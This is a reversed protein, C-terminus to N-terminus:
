TLILILCGVRIHIAESPCTFKPHKVGFTAVFDGDDKFQQTKILMAIERVRIWKLGTDFGVRAFHALLELVRLDTIM